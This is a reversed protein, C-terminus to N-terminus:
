NLERIKAEVSLLHDEKESKIFELSSQSLVLFNYMNSSNYTVEIKKYKLVINLFRIESQLIERKSILEKLEHINKIQM